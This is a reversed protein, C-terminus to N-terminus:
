RALAPASEKNRTGFWWLVCTTTLYLITDIIRKIIASAEVVGLKLGFEDILGSAEYYILTTLICLYVTLAPRVCGRVMDTFAMMLWGAAGIRGGPARIGETYRLPESRFSAAFAQSDAVDRKADGEEQAVQVRGAWEQRAGELNLRLINENHGYLLRSAELKIQEAKFDAYRQIAVGLLGTLGGSLVSSLTGTILDWM